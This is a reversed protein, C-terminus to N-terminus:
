KKGNDVTTGDRVSSYFREKDPLTEEGFRKFSDM